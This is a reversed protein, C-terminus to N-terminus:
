ESGQKNHNFSPPFSERSSRMGGEEAPDGARFYIVLLSRSGIIEHAPSSPIVSV